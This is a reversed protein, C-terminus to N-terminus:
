RGPLSVRTAALSGDGGVAFNDSRWTADVRAGSADSRLSMSRRIDGVYWRVFATEGAIEGDVRGRFCLYQTEGRLRNGERRLVLRVATSRGSKNAVVTGEYVGSFPAAPFREGPGPGVEPFNGKRPLLDEPLYTAACDAHTLLASIDDVTDALRRLEALMGALLASALAPQRFGQEFDGRHRDIFQAAARIREGDLPHTRKESWARWDAPNGAVQAVPLQRSTTSFFIAAGLPPRRMRRFLELAFRDVDREAQRRREFDKSTPGEFGHLIHGLEHGLVFLVIDLLYQEYRAAVRPDKGANAPIGLAEKPLRRDQPWRALGGHAAISVYDLVVLTSYGHLSLWAHALALDKFFLLSAVPMIVRGDSSSFFNFGQDHPGVPFEVRVRRLRQAEQPTLVPQMLGRYNDLTFERFEQQWEQQLAAPYSIQQACATGPTHAYVAAAAGCAAVRRLARRVRRLGKMMEDGM